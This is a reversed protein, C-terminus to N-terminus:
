APGKYFLKKASIWGGGLLLLFPVLWLLANRANRQPMMLVREGYHAILLAKIEEDSKGAAIAERVTRRMDRAVEAPSDDIAESQCVVCRLAHFLHQARAEMASDALKEDITLALTPSTLLLGAIMLSWFVAIIHLRKM